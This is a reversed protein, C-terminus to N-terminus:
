LFEKNHTIFFRAIRPNRGSFRRKYLFYMPKFSFYKKVGNWSRFARILKLSRNEERMQPIFFKNFIVLIVEDDFENEFFEPLKKQHFYNIFHLAIYVMAETNTKIANQKVIEWNLDKKTESLFKTDIVTHFISPRSTNRILNKALNVLSMFFIDEYCPVLINSEGFVKDLSAREFFDESVKAAADSLMDLRQHIDVLGPKEDSDLLDLSHKSDWYKYGMQDIINRAKDYDNAHVLIDLDGMLRPFDPRLHRIVGGKVILIKINAEKFKQCVKKFHSVQKLNRFRYYQLIGNLRPEDYPPYSLEPHMKKFYSLILAKHGGEAEIDWEKIFEDFEEQSVNESLVLNLLKEDNDTFYFKRFGEVIEDPISVAKKGVNELYAEEIYYKLDRKYYALFGM